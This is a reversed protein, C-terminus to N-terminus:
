EGNAHRVDVRRTHLCRLSFSSCSLQPCTLCTQAMAGGDRRPPIRSWTSPPRSSIRSSTVIHYQFRRKRSSEHKASFGLYVGVYIHVSKSLEALCIYGIFSKWSGNSSKHMLFCCQIPKSNSLSFFFMPSYPHTSIHSGWPFWLANAFRSELYHLTPIRWEILIAPVARWALFSCNLSIPFWLSQSIKLNHDVDTRYIIM